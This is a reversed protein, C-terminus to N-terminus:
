GGRVGGLLRTALKLWPSGIRASFYSTAARRNVEGLTPYPAVYQAMAGIKLGASVALSWTHILEGAEAGLISAGLIRGDRKTIIKIFGETQHEAQARDNEAYPWRLVNIRSGFRARADEERLGVHALEPDTFTVRPIVGPDVKAPLRFLARRIVIGAHYNAVHTFQPGGTVDGIAFVRNNSTVLGASVKIGTRDYKIGAQELGLGDTSPHRGTAILLHSADLVQSDGGSSVTVRIGGGERPAVTDVKVGEGIVLGERRLHEVLPQTLESDDKGLATMAELVTVRAGLRLHAQAIELGIPGGGVVVLHEIRDTVAFITENTLYPVTALGPIPPVSPASGTAIVFSRAKITYDGAEVTSRDTFRGAAQVVKVGLGTFREVSDNPEIAEIVSQIHQAVGKTNINPAVPAIGFPKPTRMHHARRAAAILAKSPVCGTWLCDGGLRAKEILVVKAGLQAGAAAVSLGGSGAGIVCLDCSVRESM